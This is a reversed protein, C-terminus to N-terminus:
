NYIAYLDTNLSWNLSILRRVVGQSMSLGWCNFLRECVNSTIHHSLLTIRLNILIGNYPNLSLGLEHSKLSCVKAADYDWVSLVPLSSGMQARGLNYQLITKRCLCMQEACRVCVQEHIYALGDLIERFLRWLRSNDQHLGHDITDRLTSKECYEM